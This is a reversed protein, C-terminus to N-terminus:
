GRPKLFEILEQEAKALGEEGPYYGFLPTAGRLEQWKQAHKQSQTGKMRPDLSMSMEAEDSILYKALTKIFHLQRENM